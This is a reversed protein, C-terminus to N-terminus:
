REGEAMDPQEGEDEDGSRFPAVIPGAKFLAGRMEHNLVIDRRRMWELLMAIQKKERDRLSALLLKLEPDTCAEWRQNLADLQNLAETVTAIARHMDRTPAALSDPAEHTM